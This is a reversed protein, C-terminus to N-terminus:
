PLLGVFTTDQVQGSPWLEVLRTQGDADALVYQIVGADAGTDVLVGRSNIEAVESGGSVATATMSMGPPLPVVEAPKASDVDWVGDSDSDQLRQIEYQTGSATIRYHAGQVSARLRTERIDNILEQQASDLDVFRRSLGLAAVAMLIAVVAVTAMM